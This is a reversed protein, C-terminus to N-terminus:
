NTSGPSESKSLTERGLLNLIRTSETYARCGVYFMAVNSIAYGILITKTYRGIRNRIEKYVHPRVEKVTFNDPVLIVGQRQAHMFTFVLATPMSILLGLNHSALSILGYYYMNEKRYYDLLLRDLMMTNILSGNCSAVLTMAFSPTRNKDYKSLNFGRFGARWCLFSTSLNLLGAFITTNNIFFTQSSPLKTQLDKFRSITADQQSISDWREQHYKSENKYYKALDM